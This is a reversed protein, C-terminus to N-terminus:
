AWAKKQTAVVNIIPRAKKKKKKRTKPCQTMGDDVNRRWSESVIPIVIFWSIIDLTKELAWILQTIPKGTTPPGIDLFETIAQTETKSGHRIVNCVIGLKWM